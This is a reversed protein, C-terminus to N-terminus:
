KIRPGYYCLTAAIYSCNTHIRIIHQLRIGPLDERIMRALDADTFQNKFELEIKSLGTTLQRAAYKLESQESSISGSQYSLAM